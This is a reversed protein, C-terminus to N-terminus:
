CLAEVLGTVESCNPFMEVTLAPVSLKKRSVDFDFGSAEARREVRKNAGKATRRGGVPEASNLFLHRSTM